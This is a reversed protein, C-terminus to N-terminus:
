VVNPQVIQLTKYSYQMCTQVIETNSWGELDGLLDSKSQSKCHKYLKLVILM